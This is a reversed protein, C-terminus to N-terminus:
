FNMWWLRSNRQHMVLSRSRGLDTVVHFLFATDIRESAIRVADPEQRHGDETVNNRESENTSM